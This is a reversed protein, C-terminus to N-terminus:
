PPLGAHVILVPGRFSAPGVDPFGVDPDHEQETLAGVLHLLGHRGTEEVEASRLTPERGAAALHLEVPLEGAVDVEPDAADRARLQRRPGTPVGVACGDLM